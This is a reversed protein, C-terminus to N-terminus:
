FSVVTELVRAVLLAYESTTLHPRYRIVTNQYCCLEVEGRWVAARGVQSASGSPETLLVDGSQLRFLAREALTFNMEMLDGLNLGAPTINAARV